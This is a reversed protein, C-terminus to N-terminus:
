EGGLHLAINMYFVCGLLNAIRSSHRRVMGMDRTRM